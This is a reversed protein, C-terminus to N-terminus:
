KWPLGCIKFFASDGRSLDLRIIGDLSVAFRIALSAPSFEPQAERFLKKVKEPPDAMKEGEVPEM